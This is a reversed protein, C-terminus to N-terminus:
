IWEEKTEFIELEIDFHKALATWIITKNAISMDTDYVDKVIKNYAKLRAKPQGINGSAIKIQKKGM